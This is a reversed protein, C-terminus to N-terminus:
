NNGITGLHSAYSSLFAAILQDDSPKLYHAGTVGPLAHGMLMELVDFDCGWEVQAFTRWSTRLNSLPIADDPAARAFWYRFGEQSMPLGDGRDALWESGQQRRSRAIELLRAGEEGPVVAVRVSQPNKLQGDPLPSTGNQPMQRVISVAAAKVGCAEVARVECAKAGLSEGARAGGFCAVIFPAEVQTGRLRRLVAKAESLSYTRTRKEHTKETPMEYHLRLRNSEVIEYQMAFDLLKRMVIVAVRAPAVKLSLLWRQVDLPRISDLPTKGWKPGIVLSWSRTYAEFTRESLGGSARRRELWPLYWTRYAYGVTPCPRDEAHETQIRALEACAQSYTGHFTKSVRKRGEPTNEVWRLLYRKGRARETVSGWSRRRPKRGM